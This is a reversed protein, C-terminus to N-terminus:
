TLINLFYIQRLAGETCRKYIDTSMSQTSPMKLALAGFLGGVSEEPRRDAPILLHCDSQEM